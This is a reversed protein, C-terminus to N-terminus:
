WLCTEIKTVRCFCCNMYIWSITGVRKASMENSSDGMLTRLGLARPLGAQSLKTKIFAGGGFFVFFFCVFLCVNTGRLFVERGGDYLHELGGKGGGVCVHM